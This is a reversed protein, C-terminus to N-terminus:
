VGEVVDDPAYGAKREVEKGKRAQRHIRLLADVINPRYGPLSVHSVHHCLRHVKFTDALDRKGQTVILSFEQTGMIHALSVNENSAGVETSANLPPTRRTGLCM